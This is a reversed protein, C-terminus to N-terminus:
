FVDAPHTVTIGSYRRFHTVDFTFVQDFRHVMAAAALRADFLQRGSIEHEDLM